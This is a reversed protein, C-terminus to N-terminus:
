ISIYLIFAGTRALLSSWKTESVSLKIMNTAFSNFGVDEVYVVFLLLKVPGNIIPAKSFRTGSGAEGAFTRKAGNTHFSRSVVAWSAVRVQSLFTDLRSPYSSLRETGRKTQHKCM